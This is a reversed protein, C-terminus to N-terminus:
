FGREAEKREKEKRDFHLDFVRVRAPVAAGGVVVVWEVEEVVSVVSLVAPLAVALALAAIVCM